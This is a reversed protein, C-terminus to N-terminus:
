DHTKFTCRLQLIKTIRYQLSSCFCRLQPMKITGNLYFGNMMNLKMKRFFLYINRNLHEKKTINRSIYKELEIRHIEKIVNARGLVAFVIQVYM